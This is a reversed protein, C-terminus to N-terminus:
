KILNGITLRGPSISNIQLTPAKQLRMPEMLTICNTGKTNVALSQLCTGLLSLTQTTQSSPLRGCLQTWVRQIKSRSEVSIENIVNPPSLPPVTVHLMRVLLSFIASGEESVQLKTILM